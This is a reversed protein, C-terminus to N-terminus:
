IETLTIKNRQIWSRLEYHSHKMWYTQFRFPLLKWRDQHPHIQPLHYPTINALFAPLFHAFHSRLLLFEDWALKDQDELWSGAWWGMVCGEFVVVLVNEFKGGFIPDKPDLDRLESPIKSWFHPAIVAAMFWRKKYEALILAVKKNGSLLGCVFTLLLFLKPTTQIPRMFFALFLLKPFCCMARGDKELTQASDTSKDSWCILVLTPTASIWKTQGFSSWSLSLLPAPSSRQKRLGPWVKPEGAFRTWGRESDGM